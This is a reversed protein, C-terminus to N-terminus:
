WPPPTLALQMADMLWGHAWLATLEYLQRYFPIHAACPEALRPLAMCPQEPASAQDHSATGIVGSAGCARCWYRWAPRGAAGRETWVHYRNTGAQCQPCPGTHEGTRRNVLRMGHLLYTTSSDVDMANRRQGHGDRDSPVACCVGAARHCSALVVSSVPTSHAHFRSRHCHRLHLRAVARTRHASRGV